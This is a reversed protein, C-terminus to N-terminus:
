MGGFARVYQTQVHLLAECRSSKLKNLDLDLHKGTQNNLLEASASRSGASNSYTCFNNTEPGFTRPQRSM